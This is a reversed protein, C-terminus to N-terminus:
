PNESAAIKEVEAGQYYYQLIVRYDFGQQAMHNAGYQSMGVRHGYGLVHFVITNSDVSVTFVTSNLGLLRRLETGPYSKKGIQMTDVGGGHTYSVAGFWGEPAGALVEDGLLSRLEAPTFSVESSYRLAAEEGYSEVSRLKQKADESILFRSSTRKEFQDLENLFWLNIQPHMPAARLASGQNGVLLEDDYIHITMNSLTHKLAMAARIVPPESETQRYSETWLVAREPCIIPDTRILRDRLRECRETLKVTMEEM